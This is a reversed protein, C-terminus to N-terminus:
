NELPFYMNFKSGVGPVGEAAIFGNHNDVIKKCIALGIGSGEYESKGHLRQFLEFIKESYEPEFGIGNDAICFNIYKKGDSFPIANVHTDEITEATITIFPEVNSKSYKLANNILNTFLQQFHFPIVNMVPMRGIEIVAQKTDIVEALNNKAEEMLINIDTSVFAERDKDLRSFHLLSEILKQMRNAAHQIKGFVDKGWDSLVAHEKQQLRSSFAQIKRLPEQLDHSAIYSFSELEKNVQELKKNKQELEASAHVGESIDVSISLIDQVANSKDRNFITAYTHFWKYQGNKHRLRFSFETIQENNINEALNAAALLEANKKAALELDDPHINELIFATGQEAAENPEYGLLSKVAQSIFIYKGTHINYAAILSPTVDAIKQIFKQKEELKREIMKQQTVDQVTGFLNVPVGLDNLELECKAHLYKTEGDKLIIRYYFDHPKLTRVTQKIQEDLLAIDNPHLFSKLNYFNPNPNHALGYIKFLENSWSSKKSELNFTWNGIRALSQVQEYLRHQLEMLHKFCLTDIEVTFRDVEEMIKLSLVNDSTYAPLFDRFIKRRIFSILTIDEPVLNERSLLPIQNGLWEQISSEVFAAAKNEGISNLFFHTRSSSEQILLEANYNEYFKFLPVELERLLRLQESTFEDAKNKNLFAAYQPLYRFHLKDNM